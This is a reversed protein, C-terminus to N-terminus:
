LILAGRHLLVTLDFSVAVTCHLLAGWFVTGSKMSLHGLAIGAVIAAVAEPMPKAFHIMCYPVVMVPISLWGFRAKLGLVMFGRFFFELAFFQAFYASEWILWRSQISEGPMMNLFPYRAQFQDTSSAIWVVPAMVVVFALYPRLTRWDASWRLGYEALRQRWVLTILVVPVVVYGAVSVGAWWLLPALDRPNTGSFTARFDAGLGTLGLSELFWALWWVDSFYHIFVLCLAVVILIVLPRVDDQQLGLRPSKGTPGVKVEGYEKRLRLYGQESMGAEKCASLLSKGQKVAANIKSLKAVVQEHTSTKRSM